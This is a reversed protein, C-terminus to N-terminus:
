SIFVIHTSDIQEPQINLDMSTLFSYSMWSVWNVSSSKITQEDTKFSIYFFMPVLLLEYYLNDSKIIQSVM